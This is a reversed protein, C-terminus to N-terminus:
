AMRLDGLERALTRMGALMRTKVTGLPTSTLSAIERQTYGGYYALALAQQQVDSLAKLAQRVREGADTAAAHEAPGRRADPEVELLSVSARRRRHHDERRVADVAKHHTMTLLWSAVSARAPDYRGAQQWVAVFVDQVVDQTVQADGTVRRALALCRPAFRDYIAALAQSGTGDPDAAVVALLAADSLMASVSPGSDRAIPQDPHLSNMAERTHVLLVVSM